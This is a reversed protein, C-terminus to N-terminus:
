SGAEGYIQAIEVFIAELKEYYDAESLEDRNERLKEAEVELENRRARAEASLQRDLEGPVLHLNRSRQGDPIAEEGVNKAVRMGDFWDARIGKGDGNDDILAQETALRREKEYFEATHSSALLFAELVSIQGDKNLDALNSQLSKALYKGFRTINVEAGSKTATIVTRNPGKLAPIFPASASATNIFVLEGSTWGEFWEGLESASVDDGELNFKASRGDFTGHGILVVWLEQPKAEVQREIESKLRERSDILTTSVDGAREAAQAWQTAAEAFPVAFELSGEAGIVILLERDRALGWGPVM